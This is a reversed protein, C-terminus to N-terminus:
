VAKKSLFKGKYAKTIKRNKTFSDGGEMVLACQEPTLYKEADTVTVKAIAMFTPGPLMSAVAGMNTVKRPTLSCAGADIVWEAGEIKVVEDPEYDELRKKLEALVLDRNTFVPSAELAECQDDLTGYRDALEELTLEPLEKEAKVAAASVTVIPKKKSVVTKLVAM